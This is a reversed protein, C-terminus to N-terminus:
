TGGATVPDECIHYMLVAEANTTVRTPQTCIHLQCQQVHVMGRVLRQYMFVVADIDCIVVRCSM